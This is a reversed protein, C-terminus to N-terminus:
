EGCEELKGEKFILTHLFRNNFHKNRIKEMVLPYFELKELFIYIKGLEKLYENYLQREGFKEYVMNELLKSFNEKEQSPLKFNQLYNM